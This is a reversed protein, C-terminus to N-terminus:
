LGRHHVGRRIKVLEHHDARLARYNDSIEVEPKRSNVEGIRRSIFSQLNGPRGAEQFEKLFSVLYCLNDFATPQKVLYWCEYDKANKLEELKTELVPNM